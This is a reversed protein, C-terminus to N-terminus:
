SFYKQYFDRCIGIGAWGLLLFGAITFYLGLSLFPRPRALFTSLVFYAMMLYTVAFIVVLSFWGLRDAMKSLM